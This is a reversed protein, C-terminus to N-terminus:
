WRARLDTCGPRVMVDNTAPVRRRNSKTSSLGSTSNWGQSRVLSTASTRLFGRTVAMLEASSTSRVPWIQASEIPWAIKEPMPPCISKMCAAARDSPPLGIMASGDVAQPPVTDRM